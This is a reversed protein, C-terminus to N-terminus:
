THKFEIYTDDNETSLHISDGVKIDNKVFFDHNAEIAIVCKKESAVVKESCPSIYSIREIKNEPSIFAISL